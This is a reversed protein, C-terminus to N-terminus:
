YTGFSILSFHSAPKLFSNPTYADDNGGGTYRSLSWLNVLERQTNDDYGVTFRGTSLLPISDQSVRGVFFIDKRRVYHYKWKKKKGVRHRCHRHKCVLNKKLVRM